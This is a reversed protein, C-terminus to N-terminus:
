MKGSKELLNEVQRCLCDFDVKSAPKFRLVTIGAQALFDDREKDKQKQKLSNHTAGDLEIVCCRNLAKDFVAFDVHAALIKGKSPFNLPKLLEILAVQPFVYFDSLVEVLKFFFTRESKTMFSQAAYAYKKKKTFLLAVAFVIALFVFIPLFQFLPAILAQIMKFGKM